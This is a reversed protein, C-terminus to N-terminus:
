IGGGTRKGLYTSCLRGGRRQRLYLYPGCGSIYKVEIRGPSVNSASRGLSVLIAGLVEHLEAIEDASLLSIMSYVTRM